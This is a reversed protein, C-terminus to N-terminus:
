VPLNGTTVPSSRSIRVDKLLASMIRGQEERPAPGLQPHQEFLAVLVLPAFWAIYFYIWYNTSVQTAALVAACLAALQGVTRRRPLFVATVALGVAFVETVSRLWHLSPDRVWVSLPSTRHIQFGLTTDWFERFGGDPIFPLLVAACVAVFVGGAVLVSRWRFPGRGVVLIPAVILPAFKAMGGLAAFAGRAPSSTVVVLAFVVFLPVLADNTNAAILLASYPYAAWAYALAIGMRTRAPGARLRRGLLFLGLLLLLDFMITTTRAANLVGKQPTYPFVLEAPVYMLYNVPGYTDGHTDNLVYLPLGHEIRDAGVV